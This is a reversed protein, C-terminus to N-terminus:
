HSTKKSSAKSKLLNQNKISNKLFREADKGQIKPSKRKQIM